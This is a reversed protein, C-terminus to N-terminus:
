EHLRLHRRPVVRFLSDLPVAIMDEVTSVYESPETDDIDWIVTTITTM